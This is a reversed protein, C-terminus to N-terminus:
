RTAAETLGVVDTIGLAQGGQEDRRRPDWAAACAARLGEISDPSAGDGTTVEVRGAIWQARAAGCRWFAGEAVTPPHAQRLGRLDAALYTPRM